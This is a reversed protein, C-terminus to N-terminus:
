HVLTFCSDECNSQHRKFDSDGFINRGFNTCVGRIESGSCDFEFKVNM